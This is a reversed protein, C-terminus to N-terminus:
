TKRFLLNPIALGAGLSSITFIVRLSNQIAATLVEPSPGAGQATLAFLELAAKTALGGPVLTICGVVHLAGRSVTIQLPVMQLAFGVVLAAIFSAVEMRYGAELVVDRVALALAGSAACLPLGRFGVNLLVGFGSAALVGCISDNALHLLDVNLARAFSGLGVM